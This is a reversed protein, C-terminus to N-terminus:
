QIEIKKLDPERNPIVITLIGQDFSAKLNETDANKQLNFSRKFDSYDFEQRVFRTETEEKTNNAAVVLQDEVIQIKIQDKTLGPVAMEIQYGNELRVINTAPRTAKLERSNIVPWQHIFPNTMVSSQPKFRTRVVPRCAYPKM